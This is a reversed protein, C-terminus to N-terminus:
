WNYIFSKDDGTNYTTTNNWIGKHSFTEVPGTPGTHGSSGQAGIGTAGTVASINEIVWM